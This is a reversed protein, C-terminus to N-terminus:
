LAFGELYRLVAGIHADDEYPLLVERLIRQRAPEVEKLGVDRLLERLSELRTLMIAYLLYRYLDEDFPAKLNARLFPLGQPGADHNLLLDFLGLLIVPNPRASYHKILLPLLEVPLSTLNRLCEACVEALVNDQPQMVYLFLPAMAGRAALVRVATIAPESSMEATYEDVVLRAAHLTALEPDLENLASLAAARLLGADEKFSPPLFEYTELAETLLPLDHGTVVQSLANLTASRLYAGPDRKAGNAACYAYLDLLPQRAEVSPNAALVPLVAMLIDQKQKPHLLSLALELQSEPDDALAALQGRVNKKQQQNTVPVQARVIYNAYLLLRYLFTGHSTETM